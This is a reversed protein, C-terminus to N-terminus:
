KEKKAQRDKVTETMKHVGKPLTAVNTVSSRLQGAVEKPMYQRECKKEKTLWGGGYARVSKKRHTQQTSQKTFM